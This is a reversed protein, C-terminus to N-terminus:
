RTASSLVQRKRFTLHDAEQGERERDWSVIRWPSPELAYKLALLNIKSLDRRRLSPLRTICRSMEEVVRARCLARGQEAAQNKKVSTGNTM